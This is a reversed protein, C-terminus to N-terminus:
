FRVAVRVGAAKITPDWTPAVAVTGLSSLKVKKYSPATFALGVLAGVGAGIVGVMATVAAVDGPSGDCSLAVWTGPPCAQTASLGTALGFGAGILGGILAGRGARRHTQNGHNIEFRSVAAISVGVVSDGVLGDRFFLSDNRLAVFTGRQADLGYMPITVRVSDGPTARSSSQAVASSTACCLVLVIAISRM